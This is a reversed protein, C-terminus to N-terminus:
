RKAPERIPAKTPKAPEKRPISPRRAPAPTERERRQPVPTEIPTVTITRIEKGIDM